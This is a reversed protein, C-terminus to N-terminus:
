KPNAAAALKTCAAFQTGLLKKKEPTYATEAARGIMECARTPQKDIWALYGLMYATALEDGHEAPNAVALPKLIEVAEDAATQAKESNGQRTYSMGLATLMNATMPGFYIPNREVLRRCIAITESFLPEARKADGGMLYASALASTSNALGAGYVDFSSRALRRYIGVSENFADEAQNIQGSLFYDAGLLTLELALDPEFTLPMRSSLERYIAISQRYADQSQKHNGGNGYVSGLIALTNAKSPLYAEPNAAVLRTRIELAENVLKEAQVPNSRSLDNGRNTLALALEPEYASPNEGALQRQILVCEEMAKDEEKYRDMMGLLNAYNNLAAALGHRNLATAPLSRLIAIAETYSAESERYRISQKYIDGLDTLTRSLEHSYESPHTRALERFIKLEENLDREADTFRQTDGELEARASLVQGLEAQYRDPEKAVLGRVRELVDALVPEAKDFQNEHLLIHAYRRGYEPNEPRFRYAKEFHPLAELPQFQLEAILGRNYHDAAIRSEEKEDEKLIRDLIERAKDLEGQHLYEEAQRSLEMQPGPENLRAELEHYREAWENAEEITASLERGTRNLEANLKKLARPDVGICNVTVNGTVNTIIPSCWGTTTQRAVNPTPAVLAALMVVQAATM